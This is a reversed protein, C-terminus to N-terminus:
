QTRGSGTHEWASERVSTIRIPRRKELLCQAKVWDRGSIRGLHKGVAVIWEEKPNDRHSKGKKQLTRNYPMLGHVGDFEERESFLQVGARKLYCYADEDARMYVPNKLIAKLSFRTFSKGLRTKRGEKQLLEELKALSGLSLFRDFIYEVLRLEEEKEELMFSKKERGDESRTVVAGSIYGLPTTGGLWRGTKALERLNDRIREAITERELQSFVSSIYMMARGMPNGTDFQEKVSIFDIGDKELEKILGAFDGINRSIRDLRYVVIARCNERGVEEMM